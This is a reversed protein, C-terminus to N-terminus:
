RGSDKKRKQWQNGNSIQRGRRKVQQERDGNKVGVIKWCHYRGINCAIFRCFATPQLVPVRRSSSSSFFLSTRPLSAPRFGTHLLLRQIPVTTQRKKYTAASSTLSFSYVGYTYDSNPTDSKNENRRHTLIPKRRTFFSSFSGLWCYDHIKYGIYYYDVITGIISSFDYVTYLGNLQFITLM